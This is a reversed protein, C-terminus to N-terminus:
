SSWWASAGPRKSWPRRKEPLWGRPTLKGCSTACTIPASASRVAARRLTQQEGCHRQAAVAEALRSAGSGGRRFRRCIASPTRRLLSQTTSGMCSVLHGGLESLVTMTTPSDNVWARSRGEATIERRVVLRGEEQSLGLAEITGRLSPSIEEFVGEVVARGKGPRIAGSDARGGLLLGIADVLMSKGAGTEGTLVNLGPGLPLTVDAITALDRVRLEVIV